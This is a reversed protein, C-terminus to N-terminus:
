KMVSRSRLKNLTTFSVIESLELLGCGNNKIFDHISQALADSEQRTLPQPFYAMVKLDANLQAFSPFDNPRWQRCILRKTAFEIIPLQSPMSKDILLNPRCIM